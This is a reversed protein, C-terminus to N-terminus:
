SSFKTKVWALPKPGLLGLTTVIWVKLSFPNQRIYRLAYNLGKLRKGALFNSTAGKRLYDYYVALSRQCLVQGHRNLLEETAAAMYPADHVLQEASFRLSRNNADSHVVGVVNPCSRTLFDKAFDMHFLSELARSDPYRVKAFASKRIVNCYDSIGKLTEVWLIYGEYDWIEDIFPLEPSIGGKDLQYMFVLRAVDTGVEITRKYILELAGPLLQDDSDILIIWQGKAADVGTNRAPCVGRNHEHRVLKVRPDTYSQVVEPSGDSSGDDVVVIEFDDFNQKLCSDLARGIFRARNYTPIVISFYPNIM